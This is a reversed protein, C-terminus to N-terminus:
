KKVNELIRTLNKGLQQKYESKSITTEYDNIKKKFFMMKNGEMQRKTWM